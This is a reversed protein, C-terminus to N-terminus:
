PKKGSGDETDDELSGESAGDSLVASVIRELMWPFMSGQKAHGNIITSPTASIRLEGLLSLDDAVAQRASDSELCALLSERELGIDPIRALVNAKRVEVLGLTHYLFDHYAWFRGQWAACEAARALWCAEPHVDALISRNCEAGLPSNVFRMRIRDPWRKRLAAAAQALSRCHSCQFDGVLVLDVPAGEPGVAPQEDFRSMDIEPPHNRIRELLLEVQKEGYARIQRLPVLSWALAVGIIAVTMATLGAKLLSRYYDAEGGRTLHKRSPLLALWAVRGDTRRLLNWYTLVLGLNVAYTAVCNLCAGGIQTVMVVGLYVDFLLALTSLLAGAALVTKRDDGRYLAAALSLGLMVCCYVLGWASVPLGLLWSTRHAAVAECDLAGGGGCLLRGAVGGAYVDLHEKVLVICFGIGVFALVVALGHALVRGVTPGTRSGTRPDDGTM